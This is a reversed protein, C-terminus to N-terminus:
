PQAATWTGGFATIGQGKVQGASSDASFRYLPMGNYTLQSSGDQRTITGLVGMLGDPAAPSDSPAAAPPWPGSCGGNCASTGANATDGSFVYLTLGNADALYSGVSGTMIQITTSTQASVPTVARTAGSGACSAAVVLAAIASLRLSRPIGTM